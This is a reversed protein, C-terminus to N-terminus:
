SIHILTKIRCLVSASAMFIIISTVIGVLHDGFLAQITKALVAIPITIDGEYHIPAMFLFLGLLSPILFMWLNGKTNTQKITQANNQM